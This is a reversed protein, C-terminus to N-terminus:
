YINLTNSLELAHNTGVPVEFTAVLCQINNIKSFFWLHPSLGFIQKDTEKYSTELLVQFSQSASRFMKNCNYFWLTQIGLFNNKWLYNTWMKFSSSICNELYSEYGCIKTTKGSMFGGPILRPSAPLLSKGRRRPQCKWPGHTGRGTASGGVRLGQSVEQERVTALCWSIQITPLSTQSQATWGIGHENGKRGKMKKLDWEKSERKKQKLGKGVCSERFYCLIGLQKALRLASWEGHLPSDPWSPVKEKEREQKKLKEKDLDLM